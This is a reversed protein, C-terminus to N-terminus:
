CKSSSLKAMNHREVEPTKPCVLFAGKAQFIDFYGNILYALHKMAGLLYKSEFIIVKIQQKAIFKM